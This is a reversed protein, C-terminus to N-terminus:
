VHLPERHLQRQAADHLGCLSAPPESLGSAAPRESLGSACVLSSPTALGRFGLGLRSFNCVNGDDRLFNLKLDIVKLLFELFFVFCVIAEVVLWCIDGARQSQSSTISWFSM